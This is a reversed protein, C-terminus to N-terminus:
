VLNPKPSLYKDVLRTFEDGWIAHHGPEEVRGHAIEHLLMAVNQKDYDGLFILKSDRLCIPGGPAFLLTWGPLEAELIHEFLSIM